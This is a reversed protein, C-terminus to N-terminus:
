PACGHGPMSRSPLAENDHKPYPKYKNKWGLKDM